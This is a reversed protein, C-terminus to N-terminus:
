FQEWYQRAYAKQAKALDKHDGYGFLEDDVIYSKGAEKAENPLDNWGKDRGTGQSQRGGGEVQPAYSRQPQSGNPKIGFKEPFKSKVYGTVRELNETLSLGPVDKLLEGHHASALATLVPDRNFWDNDAMWDTVLQPIQQAPAKAPEPRKPPEEYDQEPQFAVLAERQDKSLRDYEEANGDIVAKRKEGEFRQWMHERQSQLAARAMGELRKTRTTFDEEMRGRTEVMEGRLSKIEDQYRRNEGELKKVRSNVIPLIEEGRKVFDDSPRWREPDGRWEDKPVWGLERARKDIEPTVQAELHNDDESELEPAPASVEPAEENELDQGKNEVM